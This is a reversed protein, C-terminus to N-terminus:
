LLTLAEAGGLDSVHDAILDKLRRMWASRHDCDALLSSGNSIASRLRRLTIDAQKRRHTSNETRM